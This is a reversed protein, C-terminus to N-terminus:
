IASYGHDNLTEIGCFSHREVRSEFMCLHVCCSVCMMNYVLACMFVCHMCHELGIGHSGLHNRGLGQCRTTISM